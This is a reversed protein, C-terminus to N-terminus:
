PLISNQVHLDSHEKSAAVYKTIANQLGASCISHVLMSVPAILGIIGLGEDQFVRSLFIRYFFGIIKTLFGAVTLLLTGSILPNHLYKSSRM